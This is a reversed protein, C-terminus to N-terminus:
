HIDKMKDLKELLEEETQSEKILKTLEEAKAEAEKDGGNLRSKKIIQSIKHQTNMSLEKDLFTKLLTSRMIHKSEELAETGYSYDEDEYITFIDRHDVARYGGSAGENRGSLDLRTGDLLIYGTERWNYTNGYYKKVDNEVNIPLSYRVGRQNGGSKETNRKGDRDHERQAM